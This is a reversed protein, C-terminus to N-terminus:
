ARALLGGDVVLTTGTVFRGADSAFLLAPGVLEDPDAWRGLVTRAAIAAKQEATFVAAPLDTLFPGPALCNVTIGDPGLEIASARTLGMLAGKTASYAARGVTSVFGMISGIHIIRGWRRERMAPALARTLVMGSTLNLEVLRDWDADQIQEVPQPTNSGANNVLIDIRGFKAQAERALREAEDRRSLDAAIWAVRTKGGLEAATARLEDETRSALVVDAGAEAFGRAMAKGLGKSGGTVLAVRGTLDFRTGIMAMEEIGL